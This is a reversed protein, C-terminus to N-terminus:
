SVVLCSFFFFDIKLVCIFPKREKSRRDNKLLSLAMRYVVFSIIFIQCALGAIPLILELWFQNLQLKLMEDFVKHQCCVVKIRLRVLLTAIYEFKLVFGAM